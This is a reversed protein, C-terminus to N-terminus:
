GSRHSPRNMPFDVIQATDAPPEAPLAKTMTEVMVELTAIRAAYKDNSNIVRWPAWRTDTQAFMDHLVPMTRQRKAVGTMEDATVLHRRWPDSQVAELRAQHVDTSVHFFLKVIVTGHDRQQAEFENIEDCARSWRKDDARGTLREEVLRRYWSNYFITTDGAPPLASWFPALWHRDDMNEVASPVCRTTLHCPDWSAVLHKLVSRKGAGVWGEFIILARRRHVIQAIQLNALRFQLAALAAPYDGAYADGREFQTLDIGVTASTDCLM